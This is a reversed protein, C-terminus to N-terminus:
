ISRIPPISRPNDSRNQIIRKLFTPKQEFMHERLNKLARHTWFDVELGIRPVNEMGNQIM